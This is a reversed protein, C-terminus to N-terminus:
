KTGTTFLYNGSNFNWGEYIRNVLPCSFYSLPVISVIINPYFLTVLKNFQLGGSGALERRLGSLRGGVRAASCRGSIVFTLTPYFLSGTNCRIGANRM